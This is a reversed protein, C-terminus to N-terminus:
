PGGSCSRRARQAVAGTLVFVCGVPTAAGTLVTQELPQNPAELVTVHGTSPCCSRGLSVGFRGNAHRREQGYLLLVAFAALMMFAATRMKFYTVFELISAPGASLVGFEGSMRYAIYGEIGQAVRLCWSVRGGLRSGIKRRRRWYRSLATAACLGWVVATILQFGALLQYQSVMEGATM